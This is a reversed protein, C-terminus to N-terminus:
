FPNSGTNMFDIFIRIFFIGDKLYNSKVDKLLKLPCYKIIGVENNKESTPRVFSLLNADPKIMSVIHKKQKSQDCLCLYINYPFPYLLIQDFEGRLLTIYISLYEQNENGSIITSCIRLMFNYGFTSTKFQSSYISFPLNMENSHKIFHFTMTSDNDLLINDRMSDNPLIEVGPSLINVSEQVAIPEKEMGSVVNSTATLCNAKNVLHKKSAIYETIIKHILAQHQDSLYHTRMESSKILGTCGPLECPISRYQCIEQRHEEYLNISFFHEHCDNCQLYSHQRQLHKKYDNYLGNWSCSYCDIKIMNLEREAGRDAHTQKQEQKTHCFSCIFPESYVFMNM